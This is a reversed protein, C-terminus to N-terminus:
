LGASRGLSTVGDALSASSSLSTVLGEYEVVGERCVMKDRSLFLDAAENEPM